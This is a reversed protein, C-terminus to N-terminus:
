FKERNYEAHTMVKLIHFVGNNIWVMAALRNNNGSINFIWKNDGLYDASPFSAKIDAHYSWTADRVIKIFRKLSSSSNLHDKIFQRAARENHIKM